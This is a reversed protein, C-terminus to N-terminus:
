STLKGIVENEKDPELKGMWFDTIEGKQNILILTPTGNTQLAKLPSQKVELDTLGLQNLHAASEEVPSPFIAVLKVNKGRTVDIIRKYFPASENCFRCGTQLALILTKPQSTWDVGSFTIKSGLVPQIRAAETPSSKKFFYKHVVVTGLLLALAIILVNAIVEIARATIKM